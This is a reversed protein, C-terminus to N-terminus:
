LRHRRPGTPGASAVAAASRRPPVPSLRWSVLPQAWPGATGPLPRVWGAWRRGRLGRRARRRPQCGGATCWVGGDRGGGRGRGWRGRYGRRRRAAAVRRQRRAAARSGSRRDVRRATPSPPWRLPLRWARRTPGDGSGRRTGHGCRSPRAGAAGATVPVRASWGRCARPPEVVSAGGGTSGTAGGRGSPVGDLSVHLSRCPPPPAWGRYRQIYAGEAKRHPPSPRVTGARRRSAVWSADDLPTMQGRTRDAAEACGGRGWMAREGGGGAWGEVRWGGHGM